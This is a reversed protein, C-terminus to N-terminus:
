PISKPSHSTVAETCVDTVSDSRHLADPRTPHYPMVFLCTGWEGLDEGDAERARAIALSNSVIVGAGLQDALKAADNDVWDHRKIERSFIPVIIHTPAIELLLSGDQMLRDADECILICFRGASSEIVTLRQGQEIDEAHAGATPLHHRLRYNDINHDALTFRARKKQMAVKTGYFRDMLVACNTPPDAGGVPGTGVLLWRLVPPSPLDVDQLTSSWRLLQDDDIIGEPLVALSAGSADLANLLTPIRDPPIDGPALRYKLKGPTGSETVSFEVFNDLAPACAVLAPARASGPLDIRGAAVVLEVRGWTGESVRVFSM